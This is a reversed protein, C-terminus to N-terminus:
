RLILCKKTKVYNNSKMHILYMGTSVTKGMNDLGNWEIKHVGAEFDKEVLNRIKQGLLNFIKISVASRIPVQFVISTTPNFPNPYNNGLKYIAPDKLGETLIGVPTSAIRFIIPYDKVMVNRIVLNDNEFETVLEQQYGNLVDIGVMRQNSFDPLTVTSTIGPDFDVAIGDTWLAIMKDGSPLSFSCSRINTAASQIEIAISDTSNGAMVTCLNRITAFALVSQYSPGALIATMDMGLHMMTGRTFYKATERVTFTESTWGSPNPSWTLEDARYEGRFGHDYATDKIEQVISPYEYYYDSNNIDAPTTYYMPHWVIVDVLPMIEDSEIISFLYDRGGPDQLVNSGVVIKADPYEQRIVPVTREVLNIYDEVKIHQVPWGGNDPENWIEYYQIRDKFHHAIFQVYELYRQIEEETQFRSYGEEEEWGNPHNAVDWFILNFNLTLENAALETVHDDQTPHVSLEPWDWHVGGWEKGNFLINAYKLGLDFVMRENWQSNDSGPEINDWFSGIRNAELEGSRKPQLGMMPLNNGEQLNLTISPIDQTSVSFQSTNGDADTATALIRPYNFPAGKNFTFIGFDDAITTGEYFEGENGNSSFVEITCNACAAGTVIGAQHDYDFLFPATLQTNGGNWLAIGLESNNYVRNQTIRNGVANNGRIEIGSHKNYVIVNGPGIINNDSREIIIGSKSNGIETSESANTGIYNDRIINRGNESSYVAIGDQEYGCIINDKILNQIGGAIQIGHGSGGLDITGSLDTGVINGEITNNSIDVGNLWIGCYGNGSILNGQGVPGTGVSRNGGIINNHSPSGLLIGAESFDVIQFGRIINYDSNIFLGNIMDPTTIQSGDLIVGADSADITLNGQNLEPLQSSLTITVPATSPFISPDFTITDGNQADLMAQRLTGPGSDSISSVVFTARSGQAVVPAISQNRMLSGGYVIQIGLTILLVITMKFIVFTIFIWRM